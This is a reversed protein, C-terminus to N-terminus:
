IQSCFGVPQHNESDLVVVSAIRWSGLSFCSKDHTVPDDKVTTVVFVIGQM